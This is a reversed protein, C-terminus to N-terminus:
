LAMEELVSDVIKDVDARNALDADIGSRALDDLIWDSLFPTM